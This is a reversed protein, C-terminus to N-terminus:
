VRRKKDIDDALELLQKASQDWSRMDAGPSRRGRRAKASAELLTSLQKSDEPKFYSVTSGSVDTAERLGSIDSCIVPCGCAISQLVPLGFGEHFSPQVVTRAASMLLPLDEDPVYTENKRVDFGKSQAIKIAEFVEENLWGDGGVIFLSMKDRLSTETFARILTLLNKRPEINGLFLFFDDLRYQNRVRDIDANSRPYFVDRDVANAITTIKSVPINLYTNVEKKTTESIAVVADTRMKWISMYKRLYHRNREQVFEPYIMFCVDHIYTLSKSHLLNWNRFNPFVYVGKGLFLDLPPAYRMRSFLSLFKHSFPLLSIKINNFSYKEIRTKEDFPVFIRIDHTDAYVDDDLANLTELLVHGVGSLHSGVLPTAEIYVRQKRKAM